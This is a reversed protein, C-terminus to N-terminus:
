KKRRFMKFTDKVLDVANRARTYEDFVDMEIMVKRVVVHVLSALSFILM